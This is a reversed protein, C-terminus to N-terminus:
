RKGEWNPILPAVSRAIARYEAEGVLVLTEDPYHKAFRKLKVRSNDDMWGKVEHWEVIGAPLVVRFDPTYSRNGRKVPFEFTRPEYEWSAIEGREVLWSLYRAYNAEWASRVYLGGLDDRRGSKTRSYTNETRPPTPASRLPELHAAQQEATLSSWYASSTERLRRKTAESHSKGAMGRNHGHRRISLVAGCSASCSEQDDARPRFSAECVVCERDPYKRQTTGRHGSTLGLKRAKASISRRSHGLLAELEAAPPMTMPAPCAEYIRRLNEVQRDTWPEGGMRITPDGNRLLRKYHNMCCGRAYFPLDCGDVSCTRESM